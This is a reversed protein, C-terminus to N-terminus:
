KLFEEINDLFYKDFIQVFLEEKIQVGKKTPYFIEEGNDDFGRQYFRIDIFNYENGFYKIKNLRVIEYSKTKVEEIVRQSEIKFKKKM